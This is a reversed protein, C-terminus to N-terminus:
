KYPDNIIKSVFWQNKTKTLYVTRVDDVKNGHIHGSLMFSIEAKTGFENRLGSDSKNISIEVKDLPLNLLNRQVARTSGYNKIIRSLKDTSAAAAADLNDDVYISSFFSTAVHEPSAAEENGTSTDSCAILLYSLLFILFVKTYQTM